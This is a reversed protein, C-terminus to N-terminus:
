SKTFMIIHGIICAINVFIIIIITTKLKIGGIIYMRFFGAISLFIQFILIGLM